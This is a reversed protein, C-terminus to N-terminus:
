FSNENLLLYLLKKTISFFCSYLRNEFVQNRIHREKPSHRYPSTLMKQDTLETLKASCTFSVLMTWQRTFIVADLMHLEMQPMKLQPMKSSSLRGTSASMRLMIFCWRKIRWVSIWLYKWSRCFKSFTWRKM